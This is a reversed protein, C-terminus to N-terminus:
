RTLSGAPRTPTPPRTPMPPGAPSSSLSAPSATCSRFRTRRAPANWWLSQPETEPTAVFGLGALIERHLERLKEEHKPSEPDLEVLEGKLGNYVRRLARLRTRPTTTDHREAESWQKAANAKVDGPLKEALFHASLYEGRNTLSDLNM